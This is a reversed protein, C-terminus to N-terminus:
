LLSVLCSERHTHTHIHRAQRVQGPKATSGARGRTGSVDGELEEGSGLGPHPIHGFNHFTEDPFDDLIKSM